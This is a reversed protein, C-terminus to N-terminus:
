LPNMHEFVHFWWSLIIIIDQWTMNKSVVDFVSSFSRCFVLVCCFVGFGFLSPHFVAQLLCTLVKQKREQKVQCNISKCCCTFDQHDLSKFGSCSGRNWIGDLQTCPLCQWNWPIVPSRLRQLAKSKGVLAPIYDVHITVCSQKPILNDWVTAPSIWTKLRHVQIFLNNQSLECFCVKKFALM